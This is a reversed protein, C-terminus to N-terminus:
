EWLRWSVESLEALLPRPQFIPPIFYSAVLIRFIRGWFLFFPWFFNQLATINIYRYARNEEVKYVGYKSLHGKLIYSIDRALTAWHISHWGTFRLTELEIGLRPCMGPNSGPTWNPTCLLCGCVSTERGRKRRGKGKRFLLYIFYKKIFFLFHFNLSTFYGPNDM